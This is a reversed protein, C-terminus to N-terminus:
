LERLVQRALRNRRVKLLIGLRDKGEGTRLDVGWYTDGWLNGERLSASRTALLKLCLEPNRRPDFKLRLGEFMVDEKIEDWDCKMDVSKGMRKAEGPSPAQSILRRSEPDDSKMAQYFHEVSPYVIGDLEFMNPKMYFSSLFFYDGIFEDIIEYGESM